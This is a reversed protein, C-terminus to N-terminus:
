ATEKQAFFFAGFRRRVADQLLASVAAIDGTADLREIRDPAAEALTVFAQRLTEHFDQGMLEFRDGRGTRVLGAKVPVDLVFTADPWFHPAISQYIQDVAAVGLGQAIGQYARTSDVFRDSVVWLGKELAPWVTKVLHERRAAMVLLVETMVDWYGEGKSLWLARIDEAGPAGGVERTAIADIGQEKLFAVLARTQTSKGAGDGGELTIFKGRTM